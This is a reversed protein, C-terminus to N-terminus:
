NYGSFIFSDTHVYGVLIQCIEKITLSCRIYGCADFLGTLRKDHITEFMKGKKEKRHCRVWGAKDLLHVTVCLLVVHVM